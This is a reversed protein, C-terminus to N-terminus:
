EKLLADTLFRIATERASGDSVVQPHPDWHRHVAWFAVTELILRAAVPVDSVRRMAGRRIERELYQTLAALVGGRAGEFWLAALDPRDKAARDLLKLGHRNRELTDYLERVIGEVRDEGVGEQLMQWVGFIRQAAQAAQELRSPHDRHSVGVVTPADGPRRRGSQAARLLQSESNAPIRPAINENSPLKRRVQLRRTEFADSRAGRRGHGAGCVPM